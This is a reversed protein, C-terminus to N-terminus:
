VGARSCRPRWGGAAGQAAEQAGAFAGALSDTILLKPPFRRVSFRRPVATAHKVKYDLYVWGEKQAAAFRKGFKM